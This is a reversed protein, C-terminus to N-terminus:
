GEFHFTLWFCKLDVHDSLPGLVGCMDAMLVHTSSGRLSVEVINGTM